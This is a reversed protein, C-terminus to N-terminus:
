KKLIKEKEKQKKNEKKMLLMQHYHYLDDPCKCMDQPCNPDLANCNDNCWHYMGSQKRYLGSPKCVSFYPENENDMRELNNMDLENPNIIPYCGNQKPLPESLKFIEFIKSYIVFRKFAKVKYPGNCELPGNIAMTTYGFYGQKIEPINHCYKDWYWFASGWAGEETDSVLDPNDVLRMDGYLDLSCNAYNDLWTLQIYGRGYYYKDQQERGTRYNNTCKTKVCAIEKTHQLGVSEWYVQALFMALENKDDINFDKALRIVTEYKEMSPEPYQNLILSDKFEKWTILEKTKTEIFCNNNSLFIIPLIFFKLLIM